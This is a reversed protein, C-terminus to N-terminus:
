QKANDQMRQYGAKSIDVWNGHTRAAIEKCLNVITDRIKSDQEQTTAKAKTRYLDALKDLESGTPQNSTYRAFLDKIYSTMEGVFHPILALVENEDDSNGMRFKKNDGLYEHYTDFIDARLSYFIAGAQAAITAALAAPGGVLGFLELGNLGTALTNATAARWDGAQISDWIGGADWIMGAGPIVRKLIQESWSAGKATTRVIKKVAETDVASEATKTAADGAAAAAPDATSAGIAKGTWPNNSAAPESPARPVSPVSAQPAPTSAPPNPSNPFPIVDAEGIIDHIRM